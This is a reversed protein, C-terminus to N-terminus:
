QECSQSARTRTPRGGLEDLLTKAEKLCTTDFGETFWNYVPQLLSYAELSNDEQHLHRAFSTAARLEWWRAQQQQAITLACQLGAQAEDKRGLMLLM